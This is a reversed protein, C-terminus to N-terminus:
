EAEVWGTIYQFEEFHVYVYAEEAGEPWTATKGVAHGGGNNAWVPGETSVKVNVTATPDDVVVVVEGDVLKVVAEDLLDHNKDVVAQLTVGEALDAAKLVVYTFHNGFGPVVLANERDDTLTVSSYEKSWVPVLVPEDKVPVNVVQPAEGFGGDVFNESTWAVSTNGAATNFLLDEVAEYGELAVERFFYDTNPTLEFMYFFVGGDKTPYTAVVEEGQWLEFEFQGDEAPVLEGDLDVVKYFGVKVPTNVVQLAEGFAGNTFEFVGVENWNVGTSAIIDFHLDELPEYGFAPVERFFYHKGPSFETFSIFVGGDTTPFTGVLNLNNGNKNQEWLEFEFQGDTAPVLEGDLDVVKYFGVYANSGQAANNKKAANLTDNTEEKSCASFVLAFAMLATLFRM